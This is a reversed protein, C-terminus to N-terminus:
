RAPRLRSTPDTLSGSGPPTAAGSSSNRRSEGSVGIAREAIKRAAAAYVPPRCTISSRSNVPAAIAAAATRTAPATKPKAEQYRVFNRIVAVSSRM